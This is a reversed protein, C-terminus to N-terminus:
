CISKQIGADSLTVHGGTAQVIMDGLKRLLVGHMRSTGCCDLHSGLPHPKLLKRECYGKIDGRFSLRISCSPPSVAIVNELRSRSTASWRQQFEYVWTGVEFQSYIVFDVKLPKLPAAEGTATAIRYPPDHTSAVDVLMQDNNTTARQTAVVRSNLCHCTDGTDGTDHKKYYISSCGTNKILVEYLSCASDYYVHKFM